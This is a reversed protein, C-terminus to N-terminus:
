PPLCVGVLVPEIGALECRLQYCRGAAMGDDALRAAMAPPDCMLSCVNASDLAAAMTCVDLEITEASSGSVEIGHVDSARVVIPPPGEADAVCGGLVVM